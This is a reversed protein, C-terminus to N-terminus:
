TKTNGQLAQLIANAANLNNAAVGGNQPATTVNWFDETPM